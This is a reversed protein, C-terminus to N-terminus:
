LNEVVKFSDFNIAVDFGEVAGVLRYHCVITGTLVQDSLMDETMSVNRTQLHEPVTFLENIRQQYQDEVESVTRVGAFKLRYNVLLQFSM